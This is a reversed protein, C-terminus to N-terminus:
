STRLAAIGLDKFIHRRKARVCVTAVTKGVFHRIREMSFVVRAAITVRNPLTQTKFSMAQRTDRSTLRVAVM